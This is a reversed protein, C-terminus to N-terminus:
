LLASWGESKLRSIELHQFVFLHKGDVTNTVHSTLAWYKAQCTCLSKCLKTQCGWSHRPFLSYTTMIYLLCLNATPYLYSLYVWHSIKFHLAIANMYFINAQTNYTTFCCAYLCSVCIAMHMMLIHYKCMNTNWSFM